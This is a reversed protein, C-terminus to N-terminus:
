RKRRKRGLQLSKSGIKNDAEKCGVNDEDPAIQPHIIEGPTSGGRGPLAACRDLMQWLPVPLTPSTCLLPQKRLAEIFETCSCTGALESIGVQLCRCLGWCFSAFLINCTTNRRWISKDSDRRNRGERHM